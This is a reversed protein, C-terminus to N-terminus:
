RILAWRLFVGIILLVWLIFALGGVMLLIHPWDYQFPGGGNVALGITGVLSLILSGFFLRKGIRM